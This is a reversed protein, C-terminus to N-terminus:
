RHGLAAPPFDPSASEGGALTVRHIRRRATGFDDHVRHQTSGNDRFALDGSRWSHRCSFKEQVAHQCLEDLLEAAESEPLNLIRRTFIGNVFLGRRGTERQERVVPHISRTQDDWWAVHEARLGELRKKMAPSLSEYAAIPNAWESDGGAAPLIRIQLISAKPPESLATRDAHWWRATPAGDATDIAFIEPNKAEKLRIPHIEPLGFSRAFAIHQSETLDQGPFILVGYELLAKRIGQIEEEELATALDLGRVEAAIMPALPILEPM